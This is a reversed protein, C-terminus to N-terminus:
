KGEKVQFRMYEDMMSVSPCRCRSTAEVVEVWNESIRRRVVFLSRVYNTYSKERAIAYGPYKGHSYDRRRVIYTRVPTLVGNIPHLRYALVELEQESLRQMEKFISKYPTDKSYDNEMWATGDALINIVPMECGKVSTYEQAVRRIFGESYKRNTCIMISTKLAKLHKDVDNEVPGDIWAIDVSGGTPWSESRIKFSRYCEPYRAKLIAVVQIKIEAALTKAM